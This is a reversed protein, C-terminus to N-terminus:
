RQATQSAPYLRTKDWAAVALKSNYDVHVRISEKEPKKYDASKQGRADANQIEEAALAAVGGVSLIVRNKDLDQEPCEDRNVARTFVTFLGDASSVLEV